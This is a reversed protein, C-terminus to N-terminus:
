AQFMRLLHYVVFGPWVMAKFLAGIVPWFGDAQQVFYVAAGIYAVFFLFGWQGKDVIHNEHKSM